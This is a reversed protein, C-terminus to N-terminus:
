PNAVMEPTKAQIKVYRVGGGNSKHEGAWHILGPSNQYGSMFMLQWREQALDSNNIFEIM